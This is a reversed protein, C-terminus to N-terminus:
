AQKALKLTTTQPATSAELPERQEKKVIVGESKLLAQRWEQIHNEGRSDPMHTKVVDEVTVDPHKPQLCLFVLQIQGPLNQQALEIAVNGFYEFEGSAARDNFREVVNRAEQELVRGQRTLTNRKETMSANEEVSIESPSVDAYKASIDNSEAFCKAAKERYKEATSFAREEARDTLWKSWAAQIKKTSRTLTWTKGDVTITTGPGEAGLLQAM